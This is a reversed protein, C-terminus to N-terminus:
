LTKVESKFRPLSAKETETITLFNEPLIRKEMLLQVLHEKTINLDNFSLTNIFKADTETDKLMESTIKSHPFFQKMVCNSYQIVVQQKFVNLIKQTKYYKRTIYEKEQNNLQALEESSLGKLGFLARRYLTNQYTSYKNERKEYVSVRDKTFSGLDGRFQYKKNIERM